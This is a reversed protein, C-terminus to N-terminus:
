EKGLDRAKTEDVCEIIYSDNFTLNNNNYETWYPKLLYHHDSPLEIKEGYLSNLSMQVVLKRGLSGFDELTIATLYLKDISEEVVHSFESEGSLVSWRLRKNLNTNWFEKNLELENNSEPIPRTQYPAKSWTGLAQIGFCKGESNICRPLQYLLSDSVVQYCKGELNSFDKNNM